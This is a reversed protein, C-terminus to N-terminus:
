ESTLELIRQGFKEKLKDCFIKFKVDMGWFGCYLINVKFNM